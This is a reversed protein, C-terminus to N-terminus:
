DRVSKEIEIDEIEAASKLRKEVLQKRSPLSGALRVTLFSSLNIQVRDNPAKMVIIFEQDTQASMRIKLNKVLDQSIPNEIFWNQLLRESNV